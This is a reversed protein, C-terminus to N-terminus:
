KATAMIENSQIGQPTVVRVSMITGSVPAAGASIKIQVFDPPEFVLSQTSLQSGNVAVVVTGNGPFNTGFTNLILVGSAKKKVKVRTIEPGILRGANVENSFDSAPPTTNRARVLLPGASNRIAPNEDLEVFIDPAGAPPSQLHSIVTLGNVKVETDSRFQTGVIRIRL